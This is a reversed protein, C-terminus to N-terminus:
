DANENGGNLLQMIEARLEADKEQQERELIEVKEAEIFGDFRSRTAVSIDTFSNAPRMVYSVDFLKRISHINRTHTARDYSDGDDAVIFAFSMQDYLGSSIEEYAERSGATLSLDARVKLGHEDVSLQLSNNKSRAFVTGEHDKLFVVDRMDCNEFATPEIHEKYTIGDSEFLDYVDFTSAYGEVMYNKEESPVVDFSAMARYERNERYPM